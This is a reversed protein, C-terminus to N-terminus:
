KPRSPVRDGQEQSERLLRAERRRSKFFIVSEALHLLIYTYTMSALLAWGASPGLLVWSMAFAFAGSGVFVLATNRNHFLDKYTRFRVTSVMLYSILLVLGAVVGAQALPSQAIRDPAGHQAMVLSVICSAGVPIPIGLSYKSAGGDKAAMVNFRALRIVGCALFLFAILAGPKGLDSLGWRFVLLAPAVGFSIADALSDLQVGLQSQTKTLRAVRGDAMDFFMAFIIALASQWLAENGPAGPESYIGASWLISQFGCFISSLTFLNPLIFLTKKLNVRVKAM